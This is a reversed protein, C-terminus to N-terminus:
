DSSEQKLLQTLQAVHKMEERLVKEVKDRGADGPVLDRVGTYFFVAEKEAEIAHRLIEEMSEQGTLKQQPGKKGEWGHMATSAQLYYLMENGPDLSEVETEKETLVAQIQRFIEAHATEMESLEQLLAKVKDEKANAAAEQYFGSAEQEIQIAADLVEKPSFRAVM